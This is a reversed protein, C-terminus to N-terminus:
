RIIKNVDTGQKGMITKEAIMEKAHFCAVYNVAVKGLVIKVEYEM